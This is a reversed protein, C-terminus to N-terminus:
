ALAPSHELPPQIEDDIRLGHWPCDRWYWKYFLEAIQVDSFEGWQRWHAGHDERLGDAAKYAAAGNRVKRIMQEVSRYPFHHIRLFGEAKIYVEGYEEEGPLSVGHNGQHIVAGDEWRFAVKPLPNRDLRRWTIRRVPDPEDPDDEGSAVHDYLWAYHIRLSEPEVALYDRITGHVPVWIEDADFPVIWDAGLETAAIEALQTMKRSQYYGVEEDDDVQLRMEYETVLRDLIERTGDTSMNDLVLVMDCHHLMHRITTEIIDAEDKVMTIGVTRM